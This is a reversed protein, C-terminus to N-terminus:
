APQSVQHMNCVDGTAAASHPAGLDIEGFGLPLAQLGQSLAAAAAVAGQDPVRDIGKQLLVLGLATQGEKTLGSTEPGM